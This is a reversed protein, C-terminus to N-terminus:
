APLVGSLRALLAQSRAIQEQLRKLDIRRRREGTFAANAIRWEYHEGGPELFQFLLRELEDTRHLSDSRGVDDEHDVPFRKQLAGIACHSCSGPRYNGRISKLAFLGVSRTSNAWSLWELRQSGAKFRIWACWGSRSM